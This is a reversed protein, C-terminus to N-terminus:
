ISVYAELKNGDLDFVFAAFYNDSYEPRLGPKGGCSGGNALALEHFSEVAEQNNATFAIHTGNGPSAPKSKDYPLGIWFEFNKGYAITAGPIEMARKTGLAGMVADYFVAAKELDAVGVSVHNLLM